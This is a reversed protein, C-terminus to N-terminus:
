NNDTNVRVSIIGRRLNEISKYDGCTKLISTVLIM